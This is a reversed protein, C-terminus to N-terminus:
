LSPSRRIPLPVSALATASTTFGIFCRYNRQGVCNNVFPCHHDFRLVCHDCDRCHSARPPRVVECTRCWRYGRRYMELPVMALEDVAPTGTPECGPPGLLDHGLAARLRARSSTALVIRRRASHSRTTM